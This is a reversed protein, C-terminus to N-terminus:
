SGHRDVVITNVLEEIDIQAGGKRFGPTSTKEKIRPTGTFVEVDLDQILERVKSVDETVFVSEKEMTDTKYPVIYTGSDSKFIEIHLIKSLM